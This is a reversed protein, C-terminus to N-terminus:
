RRRTGALAMFFLLFSMGCAMVLLKWNPEGEQISKYFVIGALATVVTAGMIGVARLIKPNM